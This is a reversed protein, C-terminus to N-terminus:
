QQVLTNREKNLPNAMQEERQVIQIDIQEEKQETHNDVHEEEQIVMTPNTKNVVRRSRLEIRSFPAPTIVYTPFTQVELNQVHQTPKNNPNPIPQSPIPTLRPPNKIPAVQMQQQMNPNM